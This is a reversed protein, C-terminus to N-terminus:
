PCGFKTLICEYLFITIVPAINTKLARVEVWKTVYDIAVLIYKKRTYRWTPKVPGVFDLGMEYITGKSSEHGFKCSKSNNIRKNKLMCWLIQLLWACRHISNAVLIGCGIDEKPHNWNCFSKKITRWAIIEDGYTSV